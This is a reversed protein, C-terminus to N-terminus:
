ARQPSDGPARVACACTSAMATRWGALCDRSALPSQPKTITAAFRAHVYLQARVVHVTNGELFEVVMRRGPSAPAKRKPQARGAKMVSTAKMVNEFATM